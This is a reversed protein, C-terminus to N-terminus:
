GACLICHYYIVIIDTMHFATKDQLSFSFVGTEVGLICNNLLCWDHTYKKFSVSKTCWTNRHYTTQQGSHKQQPPVGEWTWVLFQFRLLCSSICKRPLHTKTVHRDVLYLRFYICLHSNYLSLYINTPNNWNTHWYPQTLFLQLCNWSPWM